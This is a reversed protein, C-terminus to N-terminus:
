LFCVQEPHFSDLPDMMMPMETLNKAWAEDVATMSLFCTFTIVPFNAM